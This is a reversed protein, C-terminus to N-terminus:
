RVKITYVKKTKDNVDSIIIHGRKPLLINAKIDKNFASQAPKVVYNKFSADTDNILLIEKEESHNIINYVGKSFDSIKIVDVDKFIEQVQEYLLPIEVFTEDRYVTEYYKFNDNNVGILRGSILFELNSNLAMESCNFKYSSYDSIDENECKEFVISDKSDAKDSWVAASPSYFINGGYVATDYEASYVAGACFFMIIFLLYSKLIYM